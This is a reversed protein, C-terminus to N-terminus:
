LRSDDLALDSDDDDLDGLLIAGCGDNGSIYLGRMNLGRRAACACDSPNERGLLRGVDNAERAWDAAM